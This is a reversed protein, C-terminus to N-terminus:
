PCHAPHHAQDLIREYEQEYQSALSRNRILLVNEDNAKQAASTWNFSGTLVEVGDVIMVKNHMAYCGGARQVEIGNRELFTYQSVAAKASRQDFVVRIQVGRRRALALAHALQDSTFTFALIDIQRTAAKIRGEIMDIIPDDPSFATGITTSGFRLIPHPVLVPHYPGGKGDWLAEFKIRYNAALEDLQIRLMNNNNHLSDNVTLNASGSWVVHDDIVIFKNHMFARRRDFRVALGARQLEGVRFATLPKELNQADAFLQVSRGHRHAVLLADAVGRLDFDFSAVLVSTRAGLIDRILAQEFGTHQPVSSQTETFYVQYWLADVSKADNGTRLQWFHSGIPLVLVLLCMGTISFLIGM